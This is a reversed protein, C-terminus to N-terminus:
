SMCHIDRHVFPILSLLLFTKTIASRLRFGQESLSEAIKCVSRTKTLGNCVGPDWWIAGKRAHDHHDQPRHVLVSYRNCSINLSSRQVHCGWWWDRHHHYPSRSPDVLKTRAPGFWKPKGGRPGRFASWAALEFPNPICRDSIHARKELSVERFLIGFIVQYVVLLWQSSFVRSGVGRAAQHANSPLIHGNCSSSSNGSRLRLVDSGSPPSAIPLFANGQAVTTGRLSM